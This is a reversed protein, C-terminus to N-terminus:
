KDRGGENAKDGRTKLNNISFECIDDTSTLDKAAVKKGNELYFMHNETVDITEGSSLHLRLMRDENSRKLNKHVKEVIKPEFEGDDNKSMVYDGAVIDKIKKWTMDGMMVTVDGSFCEDWIVVTFQGLVDPNYQLAQWTAVVHDHDIDKNTGSYQGVDLQAANYFAVTQRVLDDSPVVTIVRHGANAYLYSIAGTIVTKGSGTAALIVGSGSKIALDVAQAQYPRLLLPRDGITIDGFLNLCTADTAIGDEDTALIEFPSEPPTHYERNDVLEIDYGWMELSPIIQDLLRVYTKGTKEFFRIKGDWRGLRVAPIYRYGEVYVGFEDWLSDIHKPILGSVTCWVEDRVTIVCKM